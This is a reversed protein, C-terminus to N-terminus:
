IRHWGNRRSAQKRAKNIARWTGEEEELSKSSMQIIAWINWIRLPPIKAM